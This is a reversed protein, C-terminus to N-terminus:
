PLGVEGTRANPNNAPDVTVASQTPGQFRAKLQFRGRATEILLRDGVTHLTADGSCGKLAEGLETADVIVNNM